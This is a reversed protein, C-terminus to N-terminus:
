LALSEDQLPGEEDECALVGRHPIRWRLAGTM